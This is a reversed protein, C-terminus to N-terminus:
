IIDSDRRPVFSGRAAPAAAAKGDASTSAESRRASPEGAGAPAADTAMVAGQKPVEDKLHPGPAPAAAGGSAAGQPERNVSRRETPAAETGSGPASGFTAGVPESTVAPASVIADDIERQRETRVGETNQVSPAGAEPGAIVGTSSRDDVPRRESGIAHGPGGMERKTERREDVAAAPDVRPRRPARAPRQGSKKGVHQLAERLLDIHVNLGKAKLAELLVARSIGRRTASQLKGALLLVAERKGVMRSGPEPAPLADLEEGWQQVQSVQFKM